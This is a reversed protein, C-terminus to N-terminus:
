ASGDSIHSPDLDVGSARNLMAVLHGMGVHTIIEVIDADTYGAIRAEVFETTDIGGMHESLSLALRLAVGARADESVGERNAAIENGTLGAHQAEGTHFWVSYACAYRQAIALAIRVRTQPSLVGHGAITQLGEFAKLAVPSNALVLLHNPTTNIRSHLTPHSKTQESRAFGPDVTHIRSM